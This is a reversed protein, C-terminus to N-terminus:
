HILCLGSSKGFAASVITNADEEDNETMLDTDDTAFFKDVVIECLVILVCNLFDTFYFYIICHSM